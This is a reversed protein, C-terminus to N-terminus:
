SVLPAVRAPCYPRESRCPQPISNIATKFGVLHNFFKRHVSVTCMGLSISGWVGVKFSILWTFVFLVATRCVIEEHSFVAAAVVNMALVPLSCLLRSRGAPLKTIIVHLYVTLVTGYLLIISSLRRLLSLKTDIVPSHILFMDAICGCVVSGAQM